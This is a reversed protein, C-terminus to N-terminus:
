ERVNRLYLDVIDWLFLIFIILLILLILLLSSFHFFWSLSVCTLLHYATLFYSLSIAARLNIHHLIYTQLYFSYYFNLLSFDFSVSVVLLLNSYSLATGFCHSESHLLSHIKLVSGLYVLSILATILLPVYFLYFLIESGAEWSLHFCHIQRM